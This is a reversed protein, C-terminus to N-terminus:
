KRIIGRNDKWKTKLDRVDPPLKSFNTIAYHWLRRASKETVNKVTNNNRLDMVTFYNVGKRNVVNVVEVGTRPPQPAKEIKQSDEIKSALNILSEEVVGEIGVSRQVLGVIEDRVAM